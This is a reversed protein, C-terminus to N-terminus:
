FNTIKTKTKPNKNKSKQKQKTKTTKPLNKQTKQKKERAPLIAGPLISTCRVLDFNLILV